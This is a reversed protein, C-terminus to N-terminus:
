STSRRTAPRCSWSRRRWGCSRACSRGARRTSRTSVSRTRVSGDRALFERIFLNYGTAAQTRALENYRSKVAPDAAQWAHVARAFRAAPRESGPPGPTRPAAYRKFYPRGKRSSLIYGEALRALLENTLVPPPKKAM